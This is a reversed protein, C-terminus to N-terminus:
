DRDDVSIRVLLVAFIACVEREDMDEACKAMGDLCQSVIPLVNREVEVSKLIFSQFCRIRKEDLDQFSRLVAPSLQNYYQKQLLSILESAALDFM